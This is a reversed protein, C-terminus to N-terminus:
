LSIQTWTFTSIRIAIRNCLGGGSTPQVRTVIRILILLTRTFLQHLKYTSQRSGIFTKLIWSSYYLGWLLALESLINM